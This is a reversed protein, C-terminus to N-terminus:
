LLQANTITSPSKESASNLSHQSEEKPTATVITESVCNAAAIKEALNIGQGIVEYLLRESITKAPQSTVSKMCDAWNALSKGQHILLLAEYVFNYLRIEEDTVPEHMLLEDIFNAWSLLEQQCTLQQNHHLNVNM